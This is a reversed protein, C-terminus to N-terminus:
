EISKITTKIACMVAKVMLDFSMSPKRKDVVQEPLCPLHIFGNKVKLNEKDIYRLTGYMLNNCVFTGASNSIEAPIGENRINNRIKRMPLTSFYASPGENDIYEDVPKNGENDNIRADNINIAVREISVIERESLGLNIVIKPKTKEIKDITLDIAKGYVTPVKLGVVEFDEIQKKNLKDMAKESPNIDNDGYPDFGTLLIKKM